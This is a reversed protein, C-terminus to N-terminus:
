LKELSAERLVEMVQDMDAKAADQAYRKAQEHVPKFTMFDLNTVIGLFCAMQQLAPADASDFDELELYVGAMRRVLRGGWAVLACARLAETPTMQVGQNDRALPLALKNPNTTALEAQDAVAINLARLQEDQTPGLGYLREIDEVSELTAMLGLANGIPIAGEGKQLCPDGDRPDFEPSAERKIREVEARARTLEGRLKNGTRREAAAAEEAVQLRRQLDEQADTLEAVKAELDNQTPENM